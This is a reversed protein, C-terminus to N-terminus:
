PQLATSVRSGSNISGVVYGAPDDDVDVNGNPRAYRIAAHYQEEATFDGSSYNPTGMVGTSSHHQVGMAHGFEHAIIRPYLYPPSRRDTCLSSATIRLMVLGDNNGVRGLGCTERGDEAKLSTTMIQVMIWGPQYNKREPGTQISGAQLRKGTLQGVLGRNIVSIIVNVEEPSIDKGNEDTTSIYFNPNATWRIIPRLATPFDLGNRVFQRYFTLSFPASDAIMEIRYDANSGVRIGTEYDLYGSASIKVRKYPSTIGHDRALTFTGDAVTQITNFGEVSIAAGAVPQGTQSSVVRGTVAWPTPIPTPNPDPTPSPGTGPDIATKGCASFTLALFLVAAFRRM